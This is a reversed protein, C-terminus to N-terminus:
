KDKTYNTVATCPKIDTNWMFAKYIGAGQIEATEMILGSPYETSATQYSVEVLEYVGDVVEYKALALIGKHTKLFDFIGSVAKIGNETEVIVPKMYIGNPYQLKIGDVLVNGTIDKLTITETGIFNYSGLTVWGDENTESMTVTGIETEGVYIKASGQVGTTVKHNYFAIDATGKILNDVEFTLTDTEATNVYVDGNHGKYAEVPTWTGSQTAKQASYTAGYHNVFFSVTDVVEDSASKVTITYYNPGANEYKESIAVGNPVPTESNNVYIKDTPLTTTIKWDRYGAASIMEGDLEAKTYSRGDIVIDKLGLTVDEKIFAIGEADAITADAGVELNVYQDEANSFKYIGLDLWRAEEGSWDVTIDDYVEGGAKISVDLQGADYSTGNAILAPKYVMVRYYGDSSVTMDPKYQMTSDESVLMISDGKNDADVPIDRGNTTTDHFTKVDFTESRRISFNYEVPYANHKLNITIETDKNGETFTVQVSGTNREAAASNITIDTVKSGALVKITAATDAGSPLIVQEGNIKEAPLTVTEGNASVSIGFINNNTNIEENSPVLKIETFNAITKNTNVIKTLKINETSDGSFYYKGVFTWDGKAAGGYAIKKQETIGGHTVTALVERDVGGAVTGSIYQTATNYAYVNYYGPTTIGTSYTISEGYKDAVAVNKVITSGSLTDSGGHMMTGDIKYSHYGNAATLGESLTAGDATRVIADNHNSERDCSFRYEKKTGDVATVTVWATAMPDLLGTAGTNANENVALRSVGTASTNDANIKVTARPDSAVAILRTSVTNSNSYTFLMEQGTVKTNRTNEWNSLKWNKDNLPSTVVYFRELDANSNNTNSVPVFKMQSLYLYDSNAYYKNVIVCEKKNAWGGTGTAGSFYHKGLSVWGDEGNLVTKPDIDVNTACYDDKNKPFTNVEYTVNRTLIPTKGNTEKNQYIEGTPINAINYVWIEYLGATTIGPTYTAIDTSKGYSEGMALVNEGSPGIAKTKYLKKASSFGDSFVTGDTATSNALAPTIVITGEPDTSEPETNATAPITIMGLIMVIALLMSIFNKM